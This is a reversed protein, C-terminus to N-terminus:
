NEELILKDNPYRPKWSHANKCQILLGDRQGPRGSERLVKGCKPCFLDTKM